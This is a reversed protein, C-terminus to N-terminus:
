VPLPTMRTGTSSAPKTADDLYSASATDLSSFVDSIAPVVDGDDVARRRRWRHTLEPSLKVMFAPMGGGVWYDVRFLICVDASVRVCM